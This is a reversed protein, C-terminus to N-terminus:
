GKIQYIIKAHAIAANKTDSAFNQGPFEECAIQLADSSAINDLDEDYKDKVNDTLCDNIFNDVQNM